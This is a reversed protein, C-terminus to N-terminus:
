QAFQSKEFFTGHFDSTIAGVTKYEARALEKFSKGDLVVLFGCTEENEDLIASLVVGLSM